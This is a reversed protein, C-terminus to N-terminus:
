GGGGGLYPINDVYKLSANKVDVSDHSKMGHFARGYSEVKTLAMWRDGPIKNVIIWCLQSPNKWILWLLSNLFCDIEWKNWAGHGEPATAM